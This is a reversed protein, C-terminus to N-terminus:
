SAHRVERALQLLEIRVDLWFSYRQSARELLSWPSSRAAAVSAECLRTLVLRLATLANEPSGHNRLVRAAARSVRPVSPPSLCL